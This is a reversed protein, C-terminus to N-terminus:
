LIKMQYSYIRIERMEFFYADVILSFDGRGHWFDVIPSLNGGGNWLFLRPRPSLRM